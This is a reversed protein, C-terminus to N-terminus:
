RDMKKTNNATDVMVGILDAIFYSAALAFFGYFGFKILYAFASGAGASFEEMFDFTIIGSLLDAGFESSGLLFIILGLFWIVFASIEGALKIIKTVIIIVIYDKDTSIACIEDAKVMIANFIAYVVILSVLMLLMALLMINPMESLKFVDPWVMIWKILFFLVFFCGGVRLIVWSYGVKFFAGNQLVRFFPKLLLAKDIVDLVKKVEEKIKM